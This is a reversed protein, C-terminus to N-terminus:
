VFFVGHKSESGDKLDDSPSYDLSLPSETTEWSSTSTALPLRRYTNMAGGLPRLEITGPSLRQKSSLHRRGPTLLDEDSVSQLTAASITKLDVSNDTGTNTMKSVAMAVTPLSEPGDHATACAGNVYEEDGYKSDSSDSVSPLDHVVGTGMPHEKVRSYSPILIDGKSRYKKCSKANLIIFSWVLAIFILIMIVVTAIAVFELGNSFDATQPVTHRVTTGDIRKKCIYKQRSGCARKHWYGDSFCIVTCAYLAYDEYYDYSFGLYTSNLGDVWEYSRQSTSFDQLGIWACDSDEGFAGFADAMFYNELDDAVSCLNAADYTCMTQANQWSQKILNRLKYCHDNYLTWGNPCDHGV